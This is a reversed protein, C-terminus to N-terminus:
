YITIHFSKPLKEGYKFYIIIHNAYIMLRLYKFM